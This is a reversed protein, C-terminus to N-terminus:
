YTQCKRLSDYWRYRPENEYMEKCEVTSGPGFLLLKQPIAVVEADTEIDFAAKLENIAPRLVHEWAPNQTHWHQSSVEWVLKPSQTSVTSADHSLAEIQMSALKIKNIDDEDLPFAIPGHGVLQLGPNPADEIPVHFAFIRQGQDPDFYDDFHDRLQEEVEEPPLRGGGFLSTSRQSQEQGDINENDSLNASSESTEPRGECM